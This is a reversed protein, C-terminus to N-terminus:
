LLGAQPLTRLTRSPASPAPPHRMRRRRTLEPRTDFATQGGQHVRGPIAWQYRISVGRTPGSHPGNWSPYMVPSLLKSVCLVSSHLEPGEETSPWHGGGSSPGSSGEGTSKSDHNQRGTRARKTEKMPGQNHAMGTHGPLRPVLPHGPEGRVLSARGSGNKRWRALSGGEGWFVVCCLAVCCLLVGPYCRM